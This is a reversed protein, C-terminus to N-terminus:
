HGEEDQGSSRPLKTAAAYCEDYWVASGPTRQDIVDLILPYDTEIAVTGSTDARPSPSAGGAVGAGASEPEQDNTDPDDSDGDLYLVGGSEDDDDDASMLQDGRGDCGHNDDTDGSPGAADRRTSLPLNLLDAVRQLLEEKTAKKSHTVEMQELYAVLEARVPARRTDPEDLMHRLRSGVEIEQETRTRRNQKVQNRKDREALAQM